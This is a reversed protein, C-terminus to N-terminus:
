APPGAKLSYVLHLSWLGVRVWNTNVLKRIVLENYGMSLRNHCPVSVFFTWCFVSLSFVLHIPDKALLLFSCGLQLLMLPGVVYTINTSHSRHFAQFRDPPVHLMNPYILLQVLWIASTMGALSLALYFHIHSDTIESINWPM